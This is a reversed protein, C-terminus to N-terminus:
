PRAVLGRRIVVELFDLADGNRVHKGAFRLYQYGNAVAIAQKECDSEFGAGRTHRGGNWTGGDIEVVLGYQPWFFDAKFRRGSGEWPENSQLVPEPLGAERIQMLFGIELDSRIVPM